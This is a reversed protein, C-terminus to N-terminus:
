VPRWAGRRDPLEQMQCGYRYNFMISANGVAPGRAKLLKIQIRRQDRVHTYVEGDWDKPVPAVNGNEKFIFKGHKELYYRQWDFLSFMASSAQEFAASEFASAMGPNDYGGRNAQHVLVVCQEHQAAIRKAKDLISRVMGRDKDQGDQFEAIKQVQDVYVVKVGDQALRRCYTGLQAMNCSGGPQHVIRLDCQAAADVASKWRAQQMEGDGDYFLDQSSTAQGHVSTITSTMYDAIEDDTMELNIYATPVCEACKVSSYVMLRTKGVNPQALCTVVRGPRLIGGAADLSDFGTPYWERADKGESVAVQAHEVADTVFQQATIIPSAVHGEELIQELACELEGVITPIIRNQRYAEEITQTCARILARGQAKAAIKKAHYEVGAASAVSNLMALLVAAGGVKALIDRSRLVDLVSKQDPPTGQSHLEGMIAFILGHGELYFHDPTLHEAALEYAHQPELMIGGLVCMELEINQPPTLNIGQDPMEGYGQKVHDPEELHNM